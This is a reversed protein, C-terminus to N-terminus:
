FDFASQGPPSPPRAHEMDLLRRKTFVGGPASFGGMKGGAALVRHCPVLIPVPNSGMAAGTERAMGPHGASECLSGYTTTEGYGLQRAQEYIVLRFDDAGALDLPTSSFDITEGSAYNMLADVVAEIAPPPRGAESSAGRALLRTETASRDKEPLQLHTVGNASWGLGIWGLATEFVIHGCDPEMAAM